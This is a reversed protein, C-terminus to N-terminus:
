ADRDEKRMSLPHQKSDPYATGSHSGGNTIIEYGILKNRLNALQHAARQGRYFPGLVKQTEQYIPEAISDRNTEDWLTVQTLHLEGINIGTDRFFGISNTHWPGKVEDVTGDDLEFKLVHGGYGKMHGPDSDTVHLEDAPNVVDIPVYYMEGGDKSNFRRHKM